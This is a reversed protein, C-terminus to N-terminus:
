PRVPGPGILYLLPFLFIWIIDVLHWYLGTMEVPTSYDPGFAGRHARVALWLLLGLGIIIHVAHLGTMAFYLCFYTEAGNRNEARIAHADPAFTEAGPILHLEFKHHYEVVKIGLFGLGLCVTLLLWATTARRQGTAAAHVAMAM